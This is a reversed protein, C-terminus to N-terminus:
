TLARAFNGGNGAGPAVNGLTVLFSVMIGTAFWPVGGTVVYTKDTIIPPTGSLISYDWVMGVDSGLTTSPDDIEVWSEGDGSLTNVNTWNDIKAGFVVLLDTTLIDNIIAPIPGINQEVLGVSFPTGINMLIDAGVTPRFASIQMIVPQNGAGGTWSVLPATEFSEARKIFLTILPGSQTTNPENFVEDWGSPASVISSDIRSTVFLLMLDGTALGAPLPPSLNSSASGGSIAPAGVAVYTITGARERDAESGWGHNADDPLDGSGDVDDVSGWLFENSEVVGLVLQVGAAKGALLASITDDDTPDLDDDAVATMEFTAPQLDKAYIKTADTLLKFVRMLQEATGSDAAISAAHGLLAAAYSSDSQGTIRRLDLITGLNDLQLGEGTSIARKNLFDDLTDELNQIGVTIARVLASHEVSPQRHGPLRANAQDSHDTIKDPIPTAM